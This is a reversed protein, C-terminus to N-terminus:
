SQRSDGPVYRMAVVKSLGAFLLDTLVSWVRLAITVLLAIEPPMALSLLAVLVAERVGIGGPAFVALMSASSALANAAIIFTLQSAPLEHWIAKSVLFVSVGALGIFLVFMWLGQGITGWTPLNDPTLEEKRMRRYAFRAVMNFLRPWLALLCGAAAAMLLARFFPPVMDIRPDTLLLLLGTLLMVLVQLGAELFSAVALKRKSIGQQSAFYVKCMVWTAPGPIYRGLWSKAYIHILAPVNTFRPAGLMRLMKLWILSLWLRCILGVATAAAILGWSPRVERLKGYDIKLLFIGLFIALLLYFVPAAYRNLNWKPRAPAPSPFDSDPMDTM